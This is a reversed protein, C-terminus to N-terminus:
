KLLSRQGSGVLNGRLQRTLPSMCSSLACECVVRMESERESRQTERPKFLSNITLLLSPPGTAASSSKLSGYRLSVSPLSVSSLSCVNMEAHYM